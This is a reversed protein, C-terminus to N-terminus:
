SSVWSFLFHFQIYFTLAIVLLQDKLLGMALLGLGSRILLLHFHLFSHLYLINFWYFVSFNSTNSFLTFLWYLINLKYKMLVQSNYPKVHNSPMVLEISMPKPPSWSNTISLSAQRAATWPTAFLRVRSLSQVSSFKAKTSFQPMKLPNKSFWFKFLQAYNFPQISMFYLFSNFNMNFYILSFYKLFKLQLCKTKHLIDFLVVSTSEAM